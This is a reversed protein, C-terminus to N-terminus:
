DSENQIPLYINGYITPCKQNETSVLKSEKYVHENKDSVLKNGKYVHKNKDSVLKNEKYVHKNKDL